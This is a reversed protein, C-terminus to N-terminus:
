PTLTIAHGEPMWTSFDTTGGFELGVYEGFNGAQDHVSVTQLLYVGPVNTSYAPTGVARLNLSAKGGVDQSSSTYFCTVGDKLCWLAFVGAVGSGGPNAIDHVTFEAGALASGQNTGKRHASLSVSPTLVKAKEVTPAVLDVREPHRSSVEVTTDGVVKILDPGLVTTNGQSDEIHVALVSWTGPATFERLDIASSEDFNRAPLGETAPTDVLEGNPGALEVWADMVGSLDDTARVRVVIQSGNSAADGSTRLTLGTLTPPVRDIAGDAPAGWPVPAGAHAAAMAAARLARAHLQTSADAANAGAVAALLAIFITKNM